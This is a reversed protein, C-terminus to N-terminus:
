NLKHRGASSRGHELYQICSCGHRCQQSRFINRSPTQRSIYVTQGHVCVWRNVLHPTILILILIIILIWTCLKFRYINTYNFCWVELMTCGQQHETSEPQKATRQSIKITALITLPENPKMLNHQKRWSTWNKTSKLM